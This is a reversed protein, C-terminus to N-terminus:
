PTEIRMAASAEMTLDDIFRGALPIRLDPLHRVTVTVPAGQARDADDPSVTIEIPEVGASEAASRIAEIDGDVAAARAAERAAHWLRANDVVVVGVQVVLAVLM